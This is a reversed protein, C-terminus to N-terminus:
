DGQLYRVTEREGCRMCTAKKAHERARAYHLAAARRGRSKDRARLHEDARRLHCIAKGTHEACKAKQTGSMARERPAPRAIAPAGGDRGTAEDLIRLLRALPWEAADAAYQMETKQAKGHKKERGQLRM